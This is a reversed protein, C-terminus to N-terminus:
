RLFLEKLIGNWKGSGALSRAPTLVWPAKGTLAPHTSTLKPHTPMYLNELMIKQGGDASIVFDIFLLAAHPNPPNKPLMMQQTSQFYTDGLVSYGLPAGKAKVIDLTHVACICADYQGAAVQDVTAATGIAVVAVDQKGWERLYEMGKQEGM